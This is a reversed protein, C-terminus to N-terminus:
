FLYRPVRSEPVNYENCNTVRVDDLRDKMFGLPEDRATLKADVEDLEDLDDCPASSRLAPYSARM